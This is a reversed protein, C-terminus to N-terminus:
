STNLHLFSSNSKCNRVLRSCVTDIGLLAFEELELLHELAGIDCIHCAAWFHPTVSGMKEQLRKLLDIREQSPQNFAETTHTPTQSAM